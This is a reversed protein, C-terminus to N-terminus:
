FATIALLQPVLEGSQSRVPRHVNKKRLGVFYPIAGFTHCIPLPRPMEAFLVSKAIAYVDEHKCCRAEIKLKEPM